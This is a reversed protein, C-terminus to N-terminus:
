PSEPETKCPENEEPRPMPRLNEQCVFCVPGSGFTSDPGIPLLCGWSACRGPIGINGRLRSLVQGLNTM